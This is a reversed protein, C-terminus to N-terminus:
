RSRREKRMHGALAQADRKSRFTDHVRDYVMRGNEYSTSHVSYYGHRFEGREIRIVNRRAM